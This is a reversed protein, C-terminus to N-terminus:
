PIQIGSFVNLLIIYCNQKLIYINVNNQFNHEKCSNLSSKSINLHQSLFTGPHVNNKWTVKHICLSFCNSPGQARPFRQAEGAM